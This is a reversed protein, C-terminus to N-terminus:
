RQVFQRRPAFSKVWQDEWLNIDSNDRIMLLVELKNGWASSGIPQKGEKIESKSCATWAQHTAVLVKFDAVTMTKSAPSYRPVPTQLLFLAEESTFGAGTIAAELRIKKDAHEDM